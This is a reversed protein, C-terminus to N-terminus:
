ERRLRSVIFTKTWVCDDSDCSSRELLSEALSLGRMTVLLGMRKEEVGRM